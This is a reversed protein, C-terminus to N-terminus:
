ETAPYATIPSLGPMIRGFRSCHFSENRDDDDREERENEHENGLGIAEVLAVGPIAAEAFAGVLFRRIRDDESVFIAHSEGYSRGMEELDADWEEEGM